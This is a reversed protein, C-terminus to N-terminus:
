QYLIIQNEVNSQQFYSKIYYIIINSFIIIINSFIIFLRYFKNNIQVRTISKRLTKRILRSADYLGKYLLISKKAISLNPNKKEEISLTSDFGETIM